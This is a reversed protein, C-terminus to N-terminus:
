VAGHLEEFFHHALLALGSGRASSEGSPDQTLM